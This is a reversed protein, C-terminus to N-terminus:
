GLGLGKWIKHSQELGKWIENAWGINYVLSDLSIQVVRVRVRSSIESLCWVFKFDLGLGLGLDLQRLMGTLSFILNIKSQSFYQRSEVDSNKESIYYWSVTLVIVRVRVRKWIKYSLELGKWIKNAWSM